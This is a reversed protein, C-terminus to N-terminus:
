AAVEPSAKPLRRESYVHLRLRLSVHNLLAALLQTPGVRTRRVIKVYTWAAGFRRAALCKAVFWLGRAALQRIVPALDGGLTDVNREAVLIQERLYAGNLFSGRGGQGGHVTVYCGNARTVGLDNTRLIRAWCDIDGATQLAGDFSGAALVASRRAMIGSPYNLPNFGYHALVWILAHTGYPARWTGERFFDGTTGLFRGSQNRLSGLTSLLAVRENRRMFAVEDALSNPALVDDSCLFRLLEGRAHGVCRAFNGYMGVNKENRFLRLGAIQLSHVLEYTGDTSANDVVVIEVGDLHQDAASRIAREILDRREYVPICVSVLPAHQQGSGSEVTSM